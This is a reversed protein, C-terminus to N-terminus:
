KNSIRKWRRGESKIRKNKTTWNIKRRRGVNLNGLGKNLLTLDEQHCVATDKHGLTQNGFVHAASQM